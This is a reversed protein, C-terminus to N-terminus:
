VGYGHRLSGNKIQGKYVTGDEFVNEYKFELGPEDSLYEIYCNDGGVLLTNVDLIKRSASMKVHRVDVSM